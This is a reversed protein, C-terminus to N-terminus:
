TPIVLRPTPFAIIMQQDNAPTSDHMTFTCKCKLADVKWSAFLAADQAEHDPIITLVHYRVLRNIRKSVYV